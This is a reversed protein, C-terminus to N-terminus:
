LYLHYQNCPRWALRKEGEKVPADIDGAAEAKKFISSCLSIETDEGRRTRWQGCKFFDRRDGEAEGASSGEVRAAATPAVEPLFPSAGRQFRSFM